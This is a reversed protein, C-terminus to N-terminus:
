IVQNFTEGLMIIINREQTFFEDELSVKKTELTSNELNLAEKIKELEVVRKREAEEQAVLEACRANSLELEVETQVARFEYASVAKLSLKLAISLDHKLRSIEEVKRNYTDAALPELVVGQCHQEISTSLLEDEPVSSFLNEENPTLGFRVGKSFKYDGALLVLSHDSATEAAPARFPSSSELWISFPSPPRQSTNSPSRTTTVIDRRKRKKEKPAISPGVGPTSPNDAVVM